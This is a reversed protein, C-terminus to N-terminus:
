PQGQQNAERAVAALQALEKQYIPRLLQSALWGEISGLLGDRVPLTTAITVRAQQGNEQPDVTFLTASGNELNTEILMRGPEPETITAHFSQLRGMLRMQFSIQTGAGVGGQEVQLAVFYPKPLIRPHGQNYDAILAYLRAAPAQIELSASIPYNRM